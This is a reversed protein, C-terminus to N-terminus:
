YNPDLHLFHCVATLLQICRLRNNCKSCRSVMSAGKTQNYASELIAMTTARDTGLPQRPDDNPTEDGWISLDLFFARHAIFYDHNTTKTLAYDVNHPSANDRLGARFTAYKRGSGEVHVKSKAGVHGALLTPESLPTPAPPQATNTDWVFKGSCCEGHYVVCNGDHQMWLWYKEGAKGKVGSRWVVEDGIRVQVEGDTNLLLYADASGKHGTSNSSWLVSQSASLKHQDGAAPGETHGKYIVLNGDTQMELHYEGNNSVLNQGAAVRSGQVIRDPATPAPSPAPTPYPPTLTAGFYDVYYALLTPNSKNSDLYQEKAWLYADCKSSGTVSGNFKNVLNVVVKLKLVEVLQRYVSANSTSPNFAVPLLNEVGCITSAVNSTAPVNIDYLVVGQVHSRYRSVLTGIEGPGSPMSEFAAGELWQGQQLSYNKWMIDTNAYGTGSSYPTFILPGDRNVLGSLTSVLQTHEFADTRSLADTYAIDYEVIAGALASNSGLVCLFVAVHLLMNSKFNRLQSSIGRLEVKKGFM